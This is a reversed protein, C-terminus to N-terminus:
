FPCSSFTEILNRKLQYGVKKCLLVFVMSFASLDCIRNRIINSCNEFKGLGEIQM